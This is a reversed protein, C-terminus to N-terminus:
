RNKPEVSGSVALVGELVEVQKFSLNLPLDSADLVPNLKDLQAQLLNKAASGGMSVSDVDVWIQREEVIRLSCKAEVSLEVLLKVKALVKITKEVLLVNIERVNDPAQSELFMQLAAQQVTASWAGPRDVEIAFPDSQIRARSGEITLEDVVLGIPTQIWRFTASWENVILPKPEENPM